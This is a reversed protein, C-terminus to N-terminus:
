FFRLDFILVNEFYVIYLFLLSSGGGSSYKYALDEIAAEKEKIETQVDSRNRKKIAGVVNDLL